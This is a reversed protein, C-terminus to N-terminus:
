FKDITTPLDFAEASFDDNAFTWGYESMEEEQFRNDRVEAGYPILYEHGTERRYEAQLRELRRNAKTIQKELKKLNTM